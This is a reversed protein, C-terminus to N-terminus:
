AGQVGAGQMGRRRTRVGCRPGRATPLLREPHGGPLRRQLGALRGAQGSGPSGTYPFCTRMWPNRAAAPSSCCRPAAVTMFGPLRVQLLEVPQQAFQGFGLRAACAPPSCRGPRNASSPRKSRRRLRGPGRWRCRWPQAQGAAARHRGCHGAASSLCRVPAQHCILLTSTIPWPPAAPQRARGSTSACGNVHSVNSESIGSPDAEFVDLDGGAPVTGPVPNTSSNEAGVPM